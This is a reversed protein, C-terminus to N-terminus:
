VYWTPGGNWICYSKTFQQFIVQNGNGDDSIYEHSLPVGMFKGQIFLDLWNNYIGTGKPAPGCAINKLVSDWVANYMALQNTNLVKGGKQLFEWLEDWPYPGPCRARNVPDIAFHGTIGSLNNAEHMGINNRICIDKILEFSSQKQALTLDDSNDTHPKVHEISITYRNPNGLWDPNNVVGNGWAGDREQVCQVIEGSLGVVYHSSVPNNTGETSKFYQAIALASTGGATGHLIIFYKRGSNAFYNNTPVQTIQM